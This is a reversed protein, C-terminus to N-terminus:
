YSCAWLGVDELLNRPCREWVEDILEVLPTIATAPLLGRVVVACCDHRLLRGLPHNLAHDLPHPYAPLLLRALPSPCSSVPTM